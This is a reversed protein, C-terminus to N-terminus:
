PAFGEDANWGTDGLGRQTRVEMGAVVPTVCARIGQVGDVVVQCDACRGVMCYGGWPERREPMTRFVRYGAALLAVAIPEGVRATVPVGDFTITAEEAVPLPGLVAHDFIRGAGHEDARGQASV